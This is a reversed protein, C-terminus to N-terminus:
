GAGIDVTPLAVAKTVAQATEAPIAEPVFPFVGAEALLRADELLAEAGRAQARFGGLLHMSQPTPDLQRLLPIGAALLRKSTRFRRPGGQITGAHYGRAGSDAQM